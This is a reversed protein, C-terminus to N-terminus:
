IASSNGRAVHVRVAHAISQWLARFSTPLQNREIPKAITPAWQDSGYEHLTEAWYILVDLAQQKTPPGFELQLDIRSCLAPDLRDRMNTALLFLQPSTWRDLRQWFVTMANTIERACDGGGSIERSPFIAEVEDWLVVCLPQESLWDMIGGVTTTTEGLLSTIMAECCVRYLPCGLRRAIYQSAVTKGNGPPGYFLARNVPFIGHQALPAFEDLKTWQSLLVDTFELMGDSLSLSGLNTADKERSLAAPTGDHKPPLARM